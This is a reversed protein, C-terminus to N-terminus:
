QNHNQQQDYKLVARNNKSRLIQLKYLSNSSTHEELSGEYDIVLNVGVADAM